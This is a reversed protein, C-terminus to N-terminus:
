GSGQCLEYQRCTRIFGPEYYGGGLLSASLERARETDGSLIAQRVQNANACSGDASAQGAGAETFPPTAFLDTGRQQWALFRAKLLNDVLAGQDAGS